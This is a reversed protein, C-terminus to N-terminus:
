RDNKIKMFFVYFFTPPIFVWALLLPSIIGGRVFKLIPNLPLIDGITGIIANIQSAPYFADSIFLIIVQIFNTLNRNSSHRLNAFALILGVFSFIFMGIVIFLVIRFIFIFSNTMGFFMYGIIYMITAILLMVVIRSFILGGFYPIVAHPMRQLYQMFNTVKYDRLTPGITFLGENM